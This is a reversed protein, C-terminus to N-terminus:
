ICVQVTCTCNHPRFCVVLNPYLQLVSPRTHIDIAVVCVCLVCVVCVVVCVHVCICVCICVYIYVCACLPVCVCTCVCTCVYPHVYSHYVKGDIDKIDLKAGSKLLEQVVGVCGEVVVMHLPTSQM